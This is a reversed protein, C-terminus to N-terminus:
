RNWHHQGDTPMGDGDTGKLPTRQDKLGFGGDRRCTKSSHCSRCLGQINTIDWFLAPDGRHPKIHDAHTARVMRCARCIQDRALVRARLAKWAPTLYPRPDSM